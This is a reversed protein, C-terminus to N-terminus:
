PLFRGATIIYIAMSGILLGGISGIGLVWTPCGAAEKIKANTCARCYNRRDECTASTVAEKEFMTDLREHLRKMGERYEQQNARLIECITDVLAQDSM